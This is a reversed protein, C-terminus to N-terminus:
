FKAAECKTLLFSIKVLWYFIFIDEFCYKELTKSLTKANTRENRHAKNIVEELKKRRINPGIEEEAIIKIQEAAEETMTKGLIEETEELQKNKV